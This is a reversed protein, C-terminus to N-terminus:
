FCAILTSEWLGKHCYCTNCNDNCRTQAGEAFVQGNLTCTTTPPVGCFALTCQLGQESCICTNCGDNDPFQDGLQHTTGEYDCTVTAADRADGSGADRSSSDSASSGDANQQPTPDQRATADDQETEPDDEAGMDHDHHAEACAVFLAACSIAAILELWPKPRM